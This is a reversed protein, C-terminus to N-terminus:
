NVRRCFKWCAQIAIELNLIHRYEKPPKNVGARIEVKLGGRLLIGLNNRNVVLYGKTKM